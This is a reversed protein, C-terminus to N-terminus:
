TASTRICREDERLSPTAALCVLPHFAKPRLSVEVTDRFLLRQGPVLTFQAFRYSKDPSM